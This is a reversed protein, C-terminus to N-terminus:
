GVTIYKDTNNKGILVNIQGFNKLRVNELFCYNKIETINLSM